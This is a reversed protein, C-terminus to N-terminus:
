SQEPQFTTTSLSLQEATRAAVREALRDQRGLWDRTVQTVYGLTKMAGALSRAEASSSRQVPPIDTFSAIAREAANVLDRAQAANVAAGQLEHLTADTITAAQRELLHRLHRLMAGRDLTAADTEDENSLGLLFDVAVGLELSANILLHIAPAREAAEIARLLEQEIDMLQAAESQTFGHFERAERFRSGIVSRLSADSDCWSQIRVLGQAPGTPHDFVITGKV